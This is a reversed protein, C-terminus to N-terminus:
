KFFLDLILSQSQITVSSARAWKEIKACEKQELYVFVEIDLIKFFSFLNQGRFFCNVLAWM